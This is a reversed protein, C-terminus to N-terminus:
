YVPGPPLSGQQQLGPATEHQAQSDEPIDRRRAQLLSLAGLYILYAAGLLKMVNYGVASATLLAALGVASALAWMMVGTNIGLTTFLAAKRGHALVVRTVVATDAGPTITLLAAIGLFALLAPDM